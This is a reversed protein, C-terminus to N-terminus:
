GIRKLHLVCSLEGSTFQVPQLDQDILYLHIRQVQNQVINFYYPYAFTLDIDQDDEVPIRRLVSWRTNDIYSEEILDTSLIIEKPPTVFKNNLHIEALACVWTGTLNIIGPLQITFAGPNNQPFTVKSDESSVFLFVQDM